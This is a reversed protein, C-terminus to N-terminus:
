GGASYLWVTAEALEGSAVWRYNRAIGRGAYGRLFELVAARTHAGARVGALLISALDFAGAAWIGPRRGYSQTYVDTFRPASPGCGCTAITTGNFRLFETGFNEDFVGDSAAFLTSVGATQLRTRLGIAEPGYGGFFIADPAAAKIKAAVQDINAPPATTAACVPDVLTGLAQNMADTVLQSYSSGGTIVCVKRVKVVDKLYGALAPAQVNDNPLGRFFTKWGNQGLKPDSASASLFPMGAGDLRPGVAHITTSLSPGVVGIVSQDALLQPLADGSTDATKVGVRCGPNAENHLRVALGVSRGVDAALDSAAGQLDDVLGITVPPCTAGSRTPPDSVVEAARAVVRGSPDLMTQTDSAAATEFANSPQPNPADDPRLVLFGAVLALVLLVAAGALWWAWAGRRRREGHAREADPSVASDNPAHPTGRRGSGASSDAVAGDDKGLAGGGSQSPAYSQPVKPPEVRARGASEADRLPAAADTDDWSPPALEGTTEDVPATPNPGAGFNRWAPLVGPAYARTTSSGPGVAAVLARGFEGATQFRDDPNKAMARRLAADLAPPAGDRAQSVAPPEHHLHAYMIAANSGLDFPPRGTLLVYATCALSYIDSRHDVPGGEIQEPSAYAISAVVANTATLGSMDAAKAIGFDALLAREGRSRSQAVLINAPKVDRHTLGADHAHDLADAVQAVIDVARGVPMAGSDAVIRAADTGDVYQMSIWLRGGAQGQDFVTVVGPHSLRAAVIAEHTFRRRFEDNASLEEGLLKLAVLRQLREQRALYVTGMGGSGLVREIVFGAFESGPELAM